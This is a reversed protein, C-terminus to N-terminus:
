QALRLCRDAIGACVVDRERQLAAEDSAVHDRLDAEARLRLRRLAPLRLSARRDVISVAAFHIHFAGHLDRNPRSLSGCRTGEAGSGDVVEAGSPM